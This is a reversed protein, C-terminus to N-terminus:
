ENDERWQWGNRDYLSRQLEKWEDQYSQIERLSMAEEYTMGLEGVLFADTEMCMWEYYAKNEPAVERHNSSWEKRYITSAEKMCNYILGYKPYEELDEIDADQFKMRQEEFQEWKKYMFAAEAYIAYFDEHLVNHESMYEYLQRYDEAEYFGQIEEISVQNKAQKRIEEEIYFTIFLVVIGLIIVGVMVGIIANLMKNFVYLIGNNIVDQKVGEYRKQATREQWNRHKGLKNERGCYPCEPDRLKYDAGCSKCKM